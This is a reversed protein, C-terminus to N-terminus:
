SPPNRYEFRDTLFRFTREDGHEKWTMITEYHKEVPSIDTRMIKWAIAPYEDAFSGEAVGTKFENMHIRALLQQSLAAAVTINSSTLTARVYRSVAQGFVVFVTGLIVLSLLVELLIFGRNNRM